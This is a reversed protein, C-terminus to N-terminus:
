YIDINFFHYLLILFSFKEDDNLKNRCLPNLNLLNQLKTLDDNSPTAHWNMNKIKPELVEKEEPELSDYKKLANKLKKFGIKDVVKKVNDM